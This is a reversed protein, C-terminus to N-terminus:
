DISAESGRTYGRRIQLLLRRIQKDSGQSGQTGSPDTTTTDKEYFTKLLTKFLKLRKSINNCSNIKNKEGGLVELLFCQDDKKLNNKFRSCLQNLGVPHLLNSSPQRLYTAINELVDPLNRPDGRCITSHINEIKGILTNAERSIVGRIEGSLHDHDVVWDNSERDMIPCKSPENARRWEALKNVPLYTM